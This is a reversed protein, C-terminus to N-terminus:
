NQLRLRHWRGPVCSCFRKAIFPSPLCVLGHLRCLFGGVYPCLPLWFMCTKMVCTTGIQERRFISYLPPPGVHFTTPGYRIKATAEAVYSEVTRAELSKRVQMAWQAGAEGLLEDKSLELGYRCIDLVDSVDEGGDRMSAPVDQRRMAEELQQVTQGAATELQKSLELEPFKNQVHKLWETQIDESRGLMTCFRKLEGAYCAIAYRVRAIVHLSLDSAVASLCICLPCVSSPCVGLANAAFPHLLAGRCM